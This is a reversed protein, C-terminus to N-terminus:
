VFVLFLLPSFASGCCFFQMGPLCSNLPHRRAKAPTASRPALQRPREWPGPAAAQWWGILFFLRQLLSASGSAPDPNLDFEPAKFDGFPATSPRSCECHLRPPELSHKQIRSMKTRIGIEIQPNPEPDQKQRWHSVLHWCFILEKSLKKGLKIQQNSKSPLNLLKWLYFFDCFLLFWSKKKSKKAQQHFSRSRVFYHPVPDPLGLFM